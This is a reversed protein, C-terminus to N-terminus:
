SVLSQWIQLIVQKVSSQAFVFGGLVVVLLALVLGGNVDRRGIVPLTMLGAVALFLAVALGKAEDGLNKGFQTTAAAAASASVLIAGQWLALFCATRRLLSSM